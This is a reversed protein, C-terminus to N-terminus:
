VPKKAEVIGDMKDGERMLRVDTFGAKHITPLQALWDLAPFVKLDRGQVPQGLQGRVVGVAPFVHDTICGTVCYWAPAKVAVFTPAPSFLCVLIFVDGM